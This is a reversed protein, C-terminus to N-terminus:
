GSHPLCLLFFGQSFHLGQGLGGLDQPVAWLRPEFWLILWHPSSFEIKFPFQAAPPILLCTCIEGLEPRVALEAGPVNQHWSSGEGWIGEMPPKWCNGSRDSSIFNRMNPCLLWFLGWKLETGIEHGAQLKEQVERHSLLKQEVSSSHLCLPSPKRFTEAHESPM